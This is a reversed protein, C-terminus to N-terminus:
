ENCIHNIIEITSTEILLLICDYDGRDFKSRPAIEFSTISLGMGLVIKNEHQQLLNNNVTLTITMEEKHDILDARLVECPKKIKGLNVKYVILVDGEFTTGVMRANLQEITIPSTSKVKKM